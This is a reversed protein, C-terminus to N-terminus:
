GGHHCNSNEDERHEPAITTVTACIKRHPNHVSVRGRSLILSETKATIRGTAVQGIARRHALPDRLV